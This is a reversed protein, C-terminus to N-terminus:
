SRKMKVREVLPPHDALCSSLFTWALSGYFTITEVSFAGREAARATAPSLSAMASSVADWPLRTM